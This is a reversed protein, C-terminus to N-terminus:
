RRARPFYARLVDTVVDDPIGGLERVEGDESVFLVHLETKPTLLYLCDRGQKASFAIGWGLPVRVPEGTLWVTAAPTAPDVYPPSIWTLDNAAEVRQQVRQSSRTDRMRM